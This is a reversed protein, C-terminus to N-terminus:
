QPLLKINKKGYEIQSISPQNLHTQTGVQKQSLGLEIRREKMVKGVQRFLDSPRGHLKKGTTEVMQEYITEWWDRHVSQRARKLWASRIRPWHEIFRKRPLLSFLEKPKDCRMLLAIMREQFRPHDPDQLARRTDRLAAKNLDWFYKAINM